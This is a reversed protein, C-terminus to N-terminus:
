AGGGLRPESGLLLPLLKDRQKDWAVVIGTPKWRCARYFPHVRLHNEVVLFPLWERQWSQRGAHL